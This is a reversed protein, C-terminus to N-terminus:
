HIHFLAVLQAVVQQVFVKAFEIGMDVMGSGKCEQILHDQMM